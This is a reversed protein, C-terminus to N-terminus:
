QRSTQLRMVHTYIKLAPGLKLSLGQLVDSRKLLLLSQGDIEQLLIMNCETETQLRSQSELSLSLRNQLFLVSGFPQSKQPGPPKIQEIAPFASIQNTKYKYTPIRTRRFLIIGQILQLRRM